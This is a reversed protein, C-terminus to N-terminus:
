ALAFLLLDAGAATARAAEPAPPWALGLGDGGLLPRPGELGGDILQLWVPTHAALEAPWPLAQGPELAGRWLRVPRHIAM